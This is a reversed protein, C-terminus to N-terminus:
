PPPQDTQVPIIAGITTCPCIATVFVYAVPTDVARFLLVLVMFRELTYSSLTWSLLTFSWVGYEWLSSTEQKQQCDANCLM